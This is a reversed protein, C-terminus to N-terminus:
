VEVDINQALGKNILIGAIRKPIKAKSDEEFPGYEKLDDGVFRQVQKKFKVEVFGEEDSDLSKEGDDEKSGSNDQTEKQNDKSYEPKLDDKNDKDDVNIYPVKATLINYLIGKRFLDLNRVLRDYFDKELKLMSSTDIIEADTRSCDLAMNVIKHERREYLRKVIKKISEFEEESKKSEEEAFLDQKKRQSDISGKKDKLYDVLDKFFDPSLKQLDERNNEIRSIEFLTQYNIAIEESDEM